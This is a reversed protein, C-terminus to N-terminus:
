DHTCTMHDCGASKQIQIHCGPCETSIRKVEAQSAEEDERDQEHKRKIAMRATYSTCTEGDHNVMPQHALCFVMRCEDCEFEEHGDPVYQGSGCLANM